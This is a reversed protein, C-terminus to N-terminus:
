IVVTQLSKVTVIDASIVGGELLAKMAPVLEAFGASSAHLDFAAADAWREVMVLRHGDVHTEYRLCGPEQRAQSELRELLSRLAPVAGALVEATAIILVESEAPNSM